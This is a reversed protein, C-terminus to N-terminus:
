PHFDENIPAHLYKITLTATDGAQGNTIQILLYDDEYLYPQPINGHQHGQIINGLDTIDGHGEGYVFQCEKTQSAAIATATNQFRFLRNGDREKFCPTIRRDAVTADCALSIHISLLKIKMGYGPRLSYATNGAFTTGRITKYETTM